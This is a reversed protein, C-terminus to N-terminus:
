GAASAAELLLAVIPEDVEDVSRLELHHMWVRPAVHIVQKFRPSSENFIWNKQGFCATAAAVAKVRHDYAAIRPAWYSGMSIGFLGIKEADVEPRKVLYDIFAKGAKEYNGLTVRIVQYLAIFIPFQVVQGSLCGLPNVGAERYLKM